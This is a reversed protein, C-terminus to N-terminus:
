PNSGDFTVTQGPRLLKGGDTVVREGIELGGSVVFSNTEYTEVTINKLAVTSTKPDVVFVAPGDV